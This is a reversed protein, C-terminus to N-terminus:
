KELSLIVKIWGNDRKDFHHYAAIVDDFPLKQTIFPLLDFTDSKVWKLLKPIYKRHNCNGMRITLNKHMAEGISFHRMLQSYVGVISITGAKAVSKVAWELVQSPANGPYWNGHHPNTQPAIEKVEKKFQRQKLINKIFGLGCCHPADADIGVADIVAEPGRKDTLSKLTRVPDEEDFNIVEAGQKHAMDLRSPIRDIAFIHKIGVQKLCAIVLQGVPGCGFVAVTSHPTVQAFEVAMCATPLIDSLLIVQDDSITRPIKVLGVDAFPIVAKEAQLGNFPGTTKPGGFFATGADPGNPNANDCQAYLEQSCYHCSGCAITSPIIVRDGVHISRVDDGIEEVIGIGEHGLITGKKVGPMTGRVLHLDTGCIASTTIRVLASKADKLSPEKVDELAIDGVGRFVVAKM